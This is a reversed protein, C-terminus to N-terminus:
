ITPITFKELSICVLSILVRQCGTHFVQSFDYQKTYFFTNFHLLSFCFLIFLCFPSFLISFTYLLQLRRHICDWMADHWNYVPLTNVYFNIVALAIKTVGTAATPVVLLTYLVIQAVARFNGRGNTDCKWFCCSWLSSFVLLALTNTRYYCHCFFFSIYHM